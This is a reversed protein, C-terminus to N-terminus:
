YPRIIRLVSFLTFLLCLVVVICPGPSFVGAELSLLIGGGTGMLGIMVSWMLVGSMRDSIRLATASPLVLLASVLVFGALRISLVITLSLLILLLYYIVGTRVGFVGSVPEDFTFFLIEKYFLWLVMCILGGMVMALWMELSSVNLISGFLLQEYGPLNGTVGVLRVYWPYQRLVAALDTMLVGWSMTGVLIIGIATDTEVRQRRVMLGMLIAAVLCFVFVVVSQQWGTVWGLLIATGVGGFGAHSIGQGIFAMRKLVVITSLLSCLVGVAMATFLARRAFDFEMLLEIANMLLKGNHEAQRCRRRLTM